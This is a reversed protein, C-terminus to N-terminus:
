AHEFSRKNGKKGESGHKKAEEKKRRRGEPNIDSKIFASACEAGNRMKRGGEVREGKM